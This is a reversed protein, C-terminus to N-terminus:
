SHQNDSFSQQIVTLFEKAYRRLSRNGRQNKDSQTLDNLKAMRQFKQKALFNAMEKMMEPHENFITELTSQKFELVQCEGMATYKDPSPESALLSMVGFYGGPYIKEITHESGDPFTRKVKIKGFALIYLADNCDGADLIIDGADFDLVRMERLLIDCHEDDLLNFIQVKRILQKNSYEVIPVREHKLQYIDIDRTKASVPIKEKALANNIHALLRDKSKFYNPYDIFHVYIMYKYPRHEMESIRVVPAPDELVADCDLCAQLLTRRTLSISVDSPLYMYFWHGYSPEPASLNNVTQRIVSSNPIEKITNFWTVIKTVRWSIDSVEGLTKGDDLEIWDGRRFPRDISIILGAMMDNLIDKASFGLLAALIGSSIILETPIHVDFVNQSIILGTICAAVVNFLHFLVRPPVRKKEKTHLPSIWFRTDIFRVILWASLAYWATHITTFVTPALMPPLSSEYHYAISQIGWLLTLSAIANLFWLFCSRKKLKPTNKLFRNSLIAILAVATILLEIILSHESLPM